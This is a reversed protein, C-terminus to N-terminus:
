YQSVPPARNIAKSFKGLLLSIKPATCYYLFSWNGWFKASRMMLIQGSCLLSIKLAATSSIEDDIHRSSAWFMQSILIQESSVLNQLATRGRLVTWSIEDDAMMRREGSLREESQPHIIETGTDLFIGFDQHLSHKKASTMIMLHTKDSNLILKNNTMYESIVKYKQNISNNWNRWM